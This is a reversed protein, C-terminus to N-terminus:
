NQAYNILWLSLKVVVPHGYIIQINEISTTTMTQQRQIPILAHMEKNVEEFLKQMLKKSIVEPVWTIKSTFQIILCRKQM